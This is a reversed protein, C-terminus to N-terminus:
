RLTTVQDHRKRTLLAVYFGDGGDLPTFQRSTTLSWNPHRLMFACLQASNEEALLSCTAYALTGASGVLPAAADLITAQLAVLEGLRSPSLAWKGQPDRRWSGSGSCPADVLVLDYPGAPTEVIPVPTGARAARAPLDRMRAASADHAEVAVDTQAAMALAKGGGGACYDLVRQGPGLPLAEVVAQSAADQLEVLGERYTRSGAIKRANEKVELANKALSVPGTSIGEAALAAAAESVSARRRNVRLFVPARHRMRELVADCTDGLAARLPPYLWDPCDLTEAGAEPQRTAAREDASLPAPAYGQGTFVADPPEGRARLAGIMLARGDEGGGLAAFSRRCRLADYVHDRIAARDASGAYRNSRAWDGLVREAPWDPGIRDLVAIAAAIRAGPTM